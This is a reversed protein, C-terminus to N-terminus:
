RRVELQREGVRLGVAQELDGGFDEHHRVAAHNDALGVCGRYSGPWSALPHRSQGARCAVCCPRPRARRGPREQRPPSSRSSREVSSGCTSWSTARSGPSCLGPRCGCSERVQVDDPELKAVQTQPTPAGEAGLVAVADQAALEGPWGAPASISSSARLLCAPGSWSRSSRATGSGARAVPGRGARAPQLDVGQTAQVVQQPAPHLIFLVPEGDRPAGVLVVVLIPELQDALGHRPGHPPSM